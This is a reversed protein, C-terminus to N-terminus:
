DDGDMRRRKAARLGEFFNEVDEKKIVQNEKAKELMFANLQSKMQEFGSLVMLAVDHSQKEAVYDYLEREIPKEAPKSRVAHENQAIYFQLTDEHETLFACNADEYMNICKQCKCLEARWNCDKIILTKADM